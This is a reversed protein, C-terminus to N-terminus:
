QAPSEYSCGLERAEECLQQLQHPNAYPTGTLPTDSAAIAQRYWGLAAASDGMQQNALALLAFDIADGGNRLRMGEAISQRAAQWQGARYQALGLFQWDSGSEAKLRRHLHAVAWGARLQEAFPSNLALELQSSTPQGLAVPNEATPVFSMLQDFWERSQQHRGSEYHLWGLRNMIQTLKDDLERPRNVFSECGRLSRLLLQEAEDTDGQQWRVSSLELYADSLASRAWVWSPSGECVDELQRQAERLVAEAETLRRLRNLVTGLRGRGEGAAIRLNTIWGAEVDRAYLDYMEVAQRLQAEAAMVQGSDLLIQALESHCFASFAGTDHDDPLSEFDRQAQAGAATIMETGDARHGSDYLRWGLLFQQFNLALRWFREEPERQVLAELIAIAQRSFKVSALPDRSHRIDALFGYNDALERFWISETHDRRTLETLIEVARRYHEESAALQNSHAYIRGLRRNAVALNYRLQTDNPAAQSLEEYGSVIGAMLQARAPPTGSEAEMYDDTQSLLGSLLREMKLRQDEATKRADQENQALRAYRIAIVPGAVSILLICVALAGLLASVYRRRQVWRWARYLQSPRRALIPRQDLFRQLDLALEKASPYREAPMRAMARLIVTELDRPITADVTRPRKPECELVLRLLETRDQADFPASRTALEYLTAGLSYVDTRPDLLRDGRAQEPSMYRITGLLDGTATLTQDSQMQALGFDTIWASGHADILLNSPKIDRHIIGQEHAYHLGQAVEIGLKAIQRYFRLRNGEGQTTLHAIPQTDHRGSSQSPSKGQDSSDDNSVQSHQLQQILEAVSTGEVLEMAYHYIGRDCAVCHVGVIHPHRLLAAAQAEQKFRQLRKPDLIAAFPFIKLAVRRGLSIQEAEFVIGMGGRGIERILRFDGLTRDAAGGNSVALVDPFASDVSPSEFSPVAHAMLELGALCPRLLDGIEPFRGVYQEVDPPNGAECLELYEELAAVVRPDEGHDTIRSARFRSAVSSRQTKASKHPM